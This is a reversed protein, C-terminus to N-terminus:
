RGGPILGKLVGGMDPLELKQFDAPPQFLSDPQLGKDVSVVEMHFDEQAGEKARQIIRLGFFEGERMFKEWAAPPNPGRGPKGQNMMMFNGLGKTVWIEMRKGNSIGAYEEADYGAITEKRGTPKFDIADGKNKQTDFDPIRHVMYMKQEAMLISMERKDWDALMVMTMKNGKKDTATTVESRMRTGKIYYTVPLTDKGTKMTMSIKGEFAQVSVLFLFTFVFVAFLRRLSSSSNM